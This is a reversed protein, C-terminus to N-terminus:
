PVKPREKTTAGIFIGYDSGDPAEEVVFYLETGDDLVIIPSHMTVRNRGNVNGVRGSGPRFDVIKRGVIQRASVMVPPKSM